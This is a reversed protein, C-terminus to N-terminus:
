ILGLPKLRIYPYGRTYSIRSFTWRNMLKLHSYELNLRKYQVLTIPDCLSTHTPIHLVFKAELIYYSIFM